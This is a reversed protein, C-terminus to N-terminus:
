IEIGTIGRNVNVIRRGKYFGDWHRHTHGYIAVSANTLEMIKLIKEKIEQSPEKEGGHHKSFKRYLGYTFYKFNSQGHKKREWKKTEDEHYYVDYYVGEFYIGPGHFILVRKNKVAKLTWGKGISICEHNGTIYDGGYLRKLEVYTDTAKKLDSKKCNKFDIIDGCLVANENNKKLQILLEENEFTAHPAFLHIDSAVWLKTNDINM